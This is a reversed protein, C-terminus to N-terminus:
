LTKHLKELELVEVVAGLALARFQGSFSTNKAPIFPYLTL